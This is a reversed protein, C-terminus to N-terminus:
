HRDGDEIETPSVSQRPLLHSWWSLNFDIGLEEGASALNEADTNNQPKDNIALELNKRIAVLTYLMAKECALIRKYYRNHAKKLELEETFPTETLGDKLSDDLREVKSELKKAHALGFIVIEIILKQNKSLALYCKDFDDQLNPTKIFPLNFVSQELYNQNLYAERDTCTKHLTRIADNVIVKSANLKNILKKKSDRTAISSKIVETFPNLAFGVAAAILIKYIDDM